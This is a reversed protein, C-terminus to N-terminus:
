RRRAAGDAPHQQQASQAAASSLWAWEIFEARDTGVRGNHGVDPHDYFYGSGVLWFLKDVHYPSLKADHAVLVIAKFAEYDKTRAPTFGLGFLIDKVHVDPKGFDLYGLEKLFDCALPFGFGDIEYSLLMPLAPRIRHERDFVDVWAYFDDADSFQALFAAGTLIARCYLPWISRPTRRVKGRPSLQDEILDLVEEWGGAFTHNVAAPDFSFLLPGLEGVGGIAAEVVGARMNANQASELLLQYVGNLTQSRLRESGPDLYHDLVAETVGDGGFRLLYKRALACAARGRGRLENAPMRKKM